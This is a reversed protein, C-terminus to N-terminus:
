TENSRCPKSFYQSPLPKLRPTVSKPNITEAEFVAQAEKDKLLEKNALTGDGGLGGVRLTEFSLAGLTCWKEGLTM